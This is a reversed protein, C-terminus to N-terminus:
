KFISLSLSRTTNMAINREFPLFSSSPINMPKIVKGRSFYQTYIYARFHQIELKFMKRYYLIKKDLLFFVRTNRKTFNIIGLSSIQSETWNAHFTHSFSIYDQSILTLQLPFYFKDKRIHENTQLFTSSHYNSQM